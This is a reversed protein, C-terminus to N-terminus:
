EELSEKAAKITKKRIILLAAVMLALGVAISGLVIGTVTSKALKVESVVIYRAFRDTEFTLAGNEWTASMDVLEGEDSARYVKVVENKSARYAFPVSVTATGKGLTAGDLGIDMMLLATQPLDEAIDESERYTLYVDNGAVAEIAARDFTISTEGIYATLTVTSATLDAFADGFVNTMNVGLKGAAQQADVQKYYNAKGSAQDVIPAAERVTVAVTITGARYNASEASEVVVNYNGVECFENNHYITEGSTVVGELSQTEGTYAFVTRVGEIDFTAEAKDIGFGVSAVVPLAYNDNDLCVASATYVGADTAAREVSAKVEDGELINGLTITPLQPTGDYVFQTNGWSVSLTRPAV